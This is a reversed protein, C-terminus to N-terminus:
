APLVKKIQLVGDGKNAIRFDHLYDNGEEVIGFDFETEAVVAAPTGQTPSAQSPPEPVVKTGLGPIYSCGFLWLSVLFTSFWAFKRGM